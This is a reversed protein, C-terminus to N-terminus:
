RKGTAVNYVRPSYRNFIWGFKICILIAFIPLIYYGIGMAISGKGFLGYYAPSMLQLLPSHMVYIIFTYPLLKNIFNGFKQHQKEYVLDYFVWIFVVGFLIMTQHCLIKAPIPSSYKILIAQLILLFLWILGFVWSFRSPNWQKLVFSQRHIALYAGTIFFMVSHNLNGTFKWEEWEIPQMYGTFYFLTVITLVFVPFRKVLIYIIPSLLVLCILDRVYWLPMDPLPKVFFSLLFGDPTSISEILPMERFPLSTKGLKCAVGIMFVNVLIWFLQWFCFPIFLSRFRSPYKKVCNAGGVKITSLLTNSHDVGINRFFLYGSIIFFFPVAIRAVGQALSLEAFSNIWGKSSLMTYTYVDLKAGRGMHQYVVLIMSLLSLVKIKKSLYKNM